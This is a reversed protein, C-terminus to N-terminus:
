QLVEGALCDAFAKALRPPYPEAVQTMPKGTKPDLRGQGLKLHCRGTRSCRAGPGMVCRKSPTMAQKVGVWLITTPKKWRVGYQCYDCTVPFVQHPMEVSMAQVQPLRWIVSGMPNEMGAMINGQSAAQKLVQISFRAHENGSLVLGKAKPSLKNLDGWPLAKTRYSNLWGPGLSFSAISWTRCHTGLWLAWVVGSRMWKFIVAQVEPHELNLRADLKTDFRIVGAGRDLFVKGVPDTGAFLVLFVRGPRVRSSQLAGRLLSDLFDAVERPLAGLGRPMQLNRGRPGQTREQPSSNARGGNQGQGPSITGGAVPRRSQCVGSVSPGGIAHRPWPIQTVGPVSPGGNAHGMLSCKKRKGMLGKVESKRKRVPQPLDPRGQEPHRHGDVRSTPQRLSALSNKQSPLFLM